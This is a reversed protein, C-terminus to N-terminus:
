ALIRLNRAVAHKAAAKRRLGRSVVACPKYHCRIAKSKLVKNGHDAGHAKSSGSVAM